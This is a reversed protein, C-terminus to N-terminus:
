RVIEMLEAFEPERLVAGSLHIADAASPLQGRHYALAFWTQRPHYWPLCQGVLNAAANMDLITETRYGVVGPYVWGRGAFEAKGSEPRKECAVFTALVLRSAKLVRHFSKPAGTAVVDSRAHSVISRAVIFEFETEFHDAKFDAEDRFSPQKIRILDTGVKHEIAEILWRNPEV